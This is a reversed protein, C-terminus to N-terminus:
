GDSVVVRDGEKLAAARVPTIQVTGHATLGTRVEVDQTRDPASEVRVRARGDASTVVATVPVTLVASRTSGVAIKVTVPAGVAARLGKAAAPTILVPVTGVGPEADAAKDVRAGPGKATLRARYARGDSLEVVAAMGPKLLRGEADGVSGTVMFATNTVTAVEDEVREGARAEAKHLRAPLKPLFVIEGPPVSVGYTRRYEALTARASAVNRRGNAIKLRLPSTEKARKLAQGATLAAEEATRVAKRLEALRADRATAAEELFLDVARRASELDREANAAKLELLRRDDEPKAAALAQRAALLEEEAARVAQHLADLRGEDAPTTEAQEAEALASEAEALDQRAHDLAVKLPRVERGAELAKRDTLLTEEATQVAQRLQDLTQRATLDPEQARYGKSAYWRRVASATAADFVGTAATGHGFRRLARQLQRVDAGETGPAITRHMPVRGELAFVPRGNVEMLVSGEALRGPRPARTVRQAEATGGVAGALTVPLPSGYELTGSVAVTSTLKQRRVPATVLSPAPAQRAAAEDAPSRLRSGVAWGAGAIVLVGALVGGLARRPRRTM